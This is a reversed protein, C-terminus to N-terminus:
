ENDKHPDTPNRYIKHNYEIQIEHKTRSYSAFTTNGYIFLSVFFEM